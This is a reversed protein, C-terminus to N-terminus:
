EDKGSDKTQKNGNQDENPSKYETGAEAMGRGTIIMEEINQMRQEHYNTENEDTSFCNRNM